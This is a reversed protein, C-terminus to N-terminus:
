FYTLRIPTLEQHEHNLQALSLCENCVDYRSDPCLTCHWRVTTILSHCESCVPRTEKSQPYLLHYLLMVSSAKARRLSDFQYHRYQCMELFTQRSDIFPNNIPEDPDSTDSKIHELLALSRTPIKESDKTTSFASSSPPSTGIVSLGKGKGKGGRTSSNEPVKSLDIDSSTQCPFSPSPCLDASSVDSLTIVYMDDKLRCVNRSLESMLTMVGKPGLQSKEFIKRETQPRAQGSIDRCVQSTTHDPRRPWDNMSLVSETSDQRSLGPLVDGEENESHHKSDAEDDDNMLSSLSCMSSSRQRERKCDTECFSVRRTLCSTEQGMKEPNPTSPNSEERVSKPFNCLPFTELSHDIEPNQSSMGLRETVIDYLSQEFDELLKQALIHIPHSQPNYLMANTFTL